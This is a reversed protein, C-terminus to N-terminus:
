SWPVECRITLSKLRQADGEGNYNALKKGPCVKAEENQQRGGGRHGHSRHCTGVAKLAHEGWLGWRPEIFGVCDPTGPTIVTIGLVAHSM